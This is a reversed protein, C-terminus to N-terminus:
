AALAYGFGVELLSKGGIAITKQGVEIGRLHHYFACAKLNDKLCWVLAPFLNAAVLRDFITQALGRGIGQGQYSPHIYLAYLEGPYGPFGEREPGGVGFGLVQGNEGVAAYFFLNPQERTERYRQLFREEDATYSLGDLHAQPVIGRYAARWADVRVRAIGPIDREERERILVKM